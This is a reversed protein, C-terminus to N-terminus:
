CHDGRNSLTADWLEREVLEATWAAPDSRLREFDRSLNDLFMERRFREIAQKVVGQMSEGMDSALEQINQYTAKDIRVQISSM